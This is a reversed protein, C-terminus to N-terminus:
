GQSLSNFVHLCTDTLQVSRRRVDLHMGLNSNVQVGTHLPLVHQVLTVFPDGLSAQRRPSGSPRTTLGQGQQASLFSFSDFAPWLDVAAELEECQLLPKRNLSLCIQRIILRPKEAAAVLAWMSDSEKKGGLAASQEAASGDDGGAQAPGSHQAESLNPPATEGHELVHQSLSSSHPQLSGPVAEQQQQQQQQQAPLHQLQVAVLIRTDLKCEAEPLTVGWVVHDAIVVNTSWRKLQLTLLVTPLKQLKTLKRSVSAQDAEASAAALAEEPQASAETVAAPLHGPLQLQETVRHAVAACDAAAKCLAIVADAHFITRWSNLAVTAALVPASDLGGESGAPTSNPDVDASTGNFYASRGTNRGPASRPSLTDVQISLHSAHLIEVEHHHAPAQSTDCAAATQAEQHLVSLQHLQMSGTLTSPQAEGTLESLTLCQSCMLTQSAGPLQSELCDEASVAVATQYGAVLNTIGVTVKTICVALRTKAAKAPQVDLHSTQLSKQANAKKFLGRPPKLSIGLHAMDTLM